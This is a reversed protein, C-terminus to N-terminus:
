GYRFGLKSSESLKPIRPLTHIRFGHFTEITGQHRLRAKVFVAGLPRDSGHVSCHKPCIVSSHRCPFVRWLLCLCDSIMTERTDTTNGSETVCTTRRWDTTRHNFNAQSYSWEKKSGLRDNHFHANFKTEHPYRVFDVLSDHRAKQPPRSDASGHQWVHHATRQQVTTDSAGACGRTSAARQSRATSRNRSSVRAIFRSTSQATSWFYNTDKWWLLNINWHKRSGKQALGKLFHFFSLFCM